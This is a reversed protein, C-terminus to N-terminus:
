TAGEVQQEAVRLSIEGSMLKPLLLDRTLALNQIEQNNIEIRDIAPSLCQDFAFQTETAPLLIKLLGLRVRSLETQGTSGEGLSEVESERCTLNTGLYISSVKSTDARVVTIHSDVVTPETITWIQAVRGLTGVGTSNVLIDGSFLERGVISKTSHCHMRAPGFSVVRSRICKQNLVRTGGDSVYKPSIGRRIESTVSALESSRWGEPIGEEDLRDPFIAWLDAALYPERGEMKARTPGFDVFWDKFISRTMTVLTENMQRNINIKADLASLISAIAHQEELPKAPLRFRGIEALNVNPQASQAVGGLVSQVFRSDRLFYSVFEPSARNPDVRIIAVAQNTNAPLIGETAMGCKGLNAGAISYLIDRDQIQSRKLKQHTETDIFAFKNKNISGDYSLSESKIYNIGSAAFGGGATTPTTGKTILTCVDRLPVTDIM